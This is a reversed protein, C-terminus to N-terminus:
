GQNGRKTKRSVTTLAPQRRASKLVSAARKLIRTQRPPFLLMLDSFSNLEMITMKIAAPRVAQEFVGVLDGSTESL